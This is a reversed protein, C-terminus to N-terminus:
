AQEDRFLPHPIFGEPLEREIRLVESPQYVYEKGCPVVRASRQGTTAVSESPATSLPARPSRTPRPLFFKIDTFLTAHFTTSITKQVGSGLLVFQRGV